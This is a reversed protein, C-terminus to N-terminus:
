DRPSPSTYLLCFYINDPIASLLEHFMQQEFELEEIQVTLRDVTSNLDKIKSEYEPVSNAIKLGTNQITSKPKM